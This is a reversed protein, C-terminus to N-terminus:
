FVRPLADILPKLLPLPTRQGYRRDEESSIAHGLLHH